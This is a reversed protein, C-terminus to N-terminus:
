WRPYGPPGAARESQVHRSSRRAGPGTGRRGTHPTSPSGSSPCSSRPRTRAASLLCRDEGLTLRPREEDPPRDEEARHEDRQRHVTMTTETLQRVRLQERGVHYRPLPDPMPLVADVAVREKPLPRIVARVQRPDRRETRVDVEPLEQPVR